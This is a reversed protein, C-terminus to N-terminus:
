LLGKAIKSAVARDYCGPYKNDLFKIAEGVNGFVVGSLITEIQEPTLQAPLLKYLLNNEREIKETLSIHKLTDMNSKILKKVIATVVEDTPNSGDRKTLTEVEGVLLTLINFEIVSEPVKRAEQRMEKIEEYLM